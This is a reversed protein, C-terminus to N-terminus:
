LFRRADRATREPDGLTSMIAGVTVRVDATADLVVEGPVGLLDSHVYWRRFEEDSV